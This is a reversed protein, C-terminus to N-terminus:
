GQTGDADAGAGADADADEGGRGPHDIGMTSQVQKAIEQATKGEANIVPAASQPGQMNLFDEDQGTVIIAGASKASQHDLPVVRFGESELLQRVDTLGEEVAITRKM